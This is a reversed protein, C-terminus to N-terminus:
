LKPKFDIAKVTAAIKARQAAIADTFDNPGGYNVVQGTARLREPIAPDVSVTKVDLAIKEKLENSLSKIGFLGILGEVELSPYGAERATPVDPAVPARTANNVVLARIRGAQLQSQMMAYSLMVIDVRGEGLDVASATIDRYPVQTIKLGEAAEYGWFTFETIGQVMACNLQGPEKRAAETFDKMTAYPSDAKVAVALITNSVRAIPVLDTPDYPLKSYIFPHVAFNGAPAFLFTHDDNANLFATIAVISDGGPRNEVVVPKAWLAQLREAFVRAGIDAGAGPGFPVIFRVLRQPWAAARGAFPAALTVAGTLGSLVFARRTKVMARRETVDVTRVYSYESLTRKRPYLPFQSLM